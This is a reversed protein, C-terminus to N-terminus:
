AALRAASVGVTEIETEPASHGDESRFRLGYTRMIERQHPLPYDALNYRLERVMVRIQAIAAERQTQLQSRAALLASNLQVVNDEANKDAAYAAALAPQNPLGEIGQAQAASEGQLLEAAPQLWGDRTGPQIQRGESSLGYYRLAASPLKGLRVNARLTRRAEQVFFALERACVKATDTATARQANLQAVAQMAAEYQDALTHIASLTAPSLYQNDAAANSGTEYAMRLNALRKVDSVPKRYSAM